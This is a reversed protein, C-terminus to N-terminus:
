QPVLRVREVEGAHLTQLGQDTELLLRGQLDIGRMRGTRTTGEHRLHIWQNAHINRKEWATHFASFGHTAFQQLDLLWQDILAATLQNRDLPHGMADILSTRRSRPEMPQNVNLGVGLLVEAHNTMQQAHTLLGACKKQDLMIDNPWKLQCPLDLRELVRCVSVGMALSMGGLDPTEITQKLSLYINLGGPSDWRKQASRARGQTQHDALCAHPTAQNSTQLYTHTSPLTEFVEVHCPQTLLREIEKKCLTM